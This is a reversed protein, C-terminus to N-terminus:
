LNGSGAEIRLKYKTTFECDHFYTFHIRSWATFAWFPLLPVARSEKVEAISPLLHDLGSGLRKVWSLSGTGVTRSPAKDPFPARYCKEPPRKLRSLSVTDNHLLIVAIM